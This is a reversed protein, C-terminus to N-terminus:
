AADKLLEAPVRCGPEGPRPGWAGWERYKRWGELRDHWNEAVPQPKPAAATRDRTAVYDRIQPIFYGWTRASANPKAHIGALIDREFDFGAELLGIIPAPSMLGVNREERFGTGSGNAELCCELWNKPLAARAANPQQAIPKDSTPKPSPNPAKTQSVWESGAPNESGRSELPKPRGGRKGNERAVEARKSVYERERSLRSQSWQDEALTWFAMVVPKIRKWTRGDVAAWKALKADDDPLRCDPLRWAMMLLLLYAGHELASLHRTDALYADTFLPLSPFESM